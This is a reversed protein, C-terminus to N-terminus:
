RRSRGRVAKSWASRGSRAPRSQPVRATRASAPARYGRCARSRCSRHPTAPGASGPATRLGAGPPCRAGTSRCAAACGRRRCTSTRRAAGLQEVGRRLELRAAAPRAEVLGLDGLGDLQDVVAAVPHHAGLDAAPAASRVEVRTGRRGLGSRCASSCSCGTASGPSQAVADAQLRGGVAVRVLVPRAVADRARDRARDRIRHCLGRRGAASPQSLAALRRRRRGREVGVAAGPARCACLEAM